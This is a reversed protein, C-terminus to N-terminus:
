AILVDLEFSSNCIQKIVNMWARVFANIQITQGIMYGYNRYLELLVLFYIKYYGLLTRKDKKTAKTSLKKDVQDGEKM